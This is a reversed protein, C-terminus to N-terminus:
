EQEFGFAEFRLTKCNEKVTHVVDTPVGNPVEAQIELTVKVKAGNLSVLHKVVEDMIQAADRGMLRENITTSGYFRHMQAEEPVAFLQVPAPVVPTSGQVQSSTITAGGREFVAPSIREQSQMSAMPQSSVKLKTEAELAETEMQALAIEPKVLFCHADVIINVAYGAQLNV